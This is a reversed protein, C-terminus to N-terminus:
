QLDEVIQKVFTYAYISRGDKIEQIIFHDDDCDIVVGSKKILYEIHAYKFFVIAKKGLLRKVEKRILDM